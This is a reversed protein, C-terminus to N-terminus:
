KSDIQINSSSSNMEAPQPKLYKDFWALVRVAYDVQNPYGWDGPWHDEGHYKAFEVTKGLRRLGVFIEEALFPSVGGGVEGDAAGHVILLPTQIRDLYFSPSNEVYRERYEWPSGGMRAQGKESLAVGYSTGASTMQGYSSILNGLGGSMMAAKFRPTQVLLCLTSYGGYSHGMIGLRDSDAIGMEIVKNVGPLV